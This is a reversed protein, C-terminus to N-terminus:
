LSLREPFVGALQGCAAQIDRGKAYRWTTPIFAKELLSKFAIINEKLPRKWLVGDVPNYPILNVSIPRKGILAILEKAHIPQDNIHQILTYEFTINRRTAAFYADVAKLLQPLPNKKALPIIMQRLKQSPAHLSIALNVKLQKKQLLMIGEILGVTSITIRRQSIHLEKQFFLIAQCVPEFNDLPEGMGMFVIHTIPSRANKHVFLFQEIIEALTLHRILGRKGSACMVCRGKCGVQTSLCITTRHPAYILVSEIYHGDSLQFLFKETEQTSSVEKNREQLVPFIFHNHLVYLIDKGLNKMSSFDTVFHKYLWQYVQVARFKPLQLERFFKELEELSLGTLPINKNM